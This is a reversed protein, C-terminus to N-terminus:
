GDEKGNKDMSHFSVDFFFFKGKYNMTYNMTRKEKRVNYVENRM